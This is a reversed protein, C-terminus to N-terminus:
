SLDSPLFVNIFDRGYNTIAYKGSDEKIIWEKEVAFEIYFSLFDAAYEGDPDLFRRIETESIGKELKNCVIAIIELLSRRNSPQFSNALTIM